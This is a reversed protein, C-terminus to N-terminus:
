PLCKFPSAHNKGERRIREDFRVVSGIKQGCPSAPLHANVQCRWGGVRGLLLQVNSRRLPIRLSIRLLSNLTLSPLSLFGVPLTIECRKSGTRLRPLFLAVRILRLWMGSNLM